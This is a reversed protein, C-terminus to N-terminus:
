EADEPDEYSKVCYESKSIMDLLKEFDEHFHESIPNNGFGKMIRNECGPCYWVDCSWIKYPRPPASFMEVVYGGSKEIRYSTQCKVCTPSPM